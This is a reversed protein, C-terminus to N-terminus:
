IKTENYEELKLTSDHMHVIQIKDQELIDREIDELCQEFRENPINVEEIRFARNKNYRYLHKNKSLYLIQNDKLLGLRFLKDKRKLKFNIIKM